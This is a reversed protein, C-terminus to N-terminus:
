PVRGRLPRVFCVRRQVQGEWEKRLFPRHLTLAAACKTTLLHGVSGLVCAHVQLPGRDM